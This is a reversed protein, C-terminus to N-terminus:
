WISEEEDRRRLEETVRILAPPIVLPYSECLDKFVTLEVAAHKEEDRFSLSSEPLSVWFRGEEHHLFCGRIELTAGCYDVPDSDYCSIGLSLELEAIATEVPADFPCYSDVQVVLGTKAILEAASIPRNRRKFVRGGLPAAGDNITMDHEIIHDDIMQIKM